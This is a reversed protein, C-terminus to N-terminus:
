TNLESRRYFYTGNVLCRSPLALGDDIEKLTRKSKLIGVIRDIMRTAFLIYTGANSNISIGHIQQDILLNLQPLVSEYGNVFEEKLLQNTIRARQTMYRDYYIPYIRSCDILPHCVIRIISNEIESLCEAFFEREKDLELLACIHALLESPATNNEM